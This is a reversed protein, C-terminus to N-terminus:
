VRSAPTGIAEVVHGAVHGLPHLIPEAEVVVGVHRLFIRRSRRAAAVLAHTSARPLASDDHKAGRRAATRTRILPGGRDAEAAGLREGFRFIRLTASRKTLSPGWPLKAHPSEQSILAVEAEMVRTNKMPNTTATAVSTPQAVEILSRACLDGATPCLQQLDTSTDERRAAM